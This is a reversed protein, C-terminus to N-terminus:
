LDKYVDKRHRIRLVFVRKKAPTFQYVIRYVGVRVRLFDKRDKLRKVGPLLPNESIEDIKNLIKRQYESPLSRLEKKASDKIILNFLGM